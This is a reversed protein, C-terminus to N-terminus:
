AEWGQRAATDPGASCTGFSTSRGDESKLEEIRAIELWADRLSLLLATQERLVHVAKSGQAVLLRTRLLSYFRDLNHAIEGGNQYDLRGQLQELIALAHDIERSRGEIDQNEMASTARNIDKVMQDYLAIVLRIKSLGQASLQRYEAGVDM